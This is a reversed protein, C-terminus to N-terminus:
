PRDVDSAVAAGHTNIYEVGDVTNLSPARVRSLIAFPLIGHHGGRIKNFM